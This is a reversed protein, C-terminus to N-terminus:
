SQSVKIIEGDKITNLASLVEPMLPVLDDLRNSKAALLVFAIGYDSLTQQYRMNSDITVFVDFEGAMLSLLEGNTKGAWGREPVTVAEHAAFHKKLPRPLCEDILIKMM